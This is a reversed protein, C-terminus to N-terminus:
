RPNRKLWWSKFEGFEIQRNGNVDIALFATLTQEPTFSVGLAVLLAAFEDDDISGNRDTDFRDFQASLEDPSPDPM